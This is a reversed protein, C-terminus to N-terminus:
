KSASQKASLQLTQFTAVPDPSQWVAGLVAAGAFGMERVAGLNAAAIGGLALVRPQYGPRTAWRALAGPLAGLNFAAGYGPKSRSDFVPSLFVYDYRRRHQAVEALSHFSTSLTFGSGPPWLPPGAARGAPLHAGRLGYRPVLEHYNHLVLRSHFEKPIAEIYAVLKQFPAGPKRVHLATLGAALLAGAVRPEVAATTPPTIVLLQM